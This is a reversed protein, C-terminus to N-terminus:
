TSAFITLSPRLKRAGVNSRSRTVMEVRTLGVDERTGGQTNKEAIWDAVLDLEIERARRVSEIDDPHSWFLDLHHAGGEIVVARLSTSLSETVGLRAWPDLDGNSWVINSAARLRRGGFTTDAWTVRPRVGWQRECAAIAATQNWPQPWFMDRVGDRGMPMFMETCYQYGWLDGDEETSPNVGSTYNFCPKDRTYNYFVGVAEALASVLADGGAAALDPNSINGSCAVRFPYPPLMGDGNLIYSSPYPFNGMALYDFADQLWDMVADLHDRTSLPQSPCLRLPTALSAIREESGVIADKVGEADTAPSPSSARNLMERWALRVNAACENPSGGKVTADFTVGMAFAGPDVPPDEGVFSWIPASGAVAGDVLSPYKLRMWTALMGGYSGGFVIVPADPAGIESKVDRILTAYDAMAQESTLYALDPARMRDSGDGDRSDEGASTRRLRANPRSKGYYRHEAFVLVANFRRANEWMLGTANLYLEVDAENGTYFFVTTPAADGDDVSSGGAALSEGGGREWFKPCFFYRQRYTKESAGRSFHDLPADRFREECLHVPSAHTPLAHAPPAFTCRGAVGCGRFGRAPRRSPRFRGRGIFGGGNAPASCPTSLSTLSRCRRTTQAWTFHM